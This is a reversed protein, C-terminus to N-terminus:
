GEKYIMLGLDVWKQPMPNQGNLWARMTIPNENYAEACEKVCGYVVGNCVVKKARPHKGNSLLGKHAESIRKSQEKTPKWGVKTNGQLARKERIKRRSEETHKKGYFSNNEGSHAESMKRRTDESVKSNKRLNSFAIRAEEYQEASVDYRQQTVSKVHCMLWWACVLDNENPNEQALLRHVEYHERAYLDVLNNEEDNGGMCKPLIHHREKYEGDPVGFRGRTDLINQIFEDYTLSM